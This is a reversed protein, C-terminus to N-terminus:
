TYKEVIERIQLDYKGAAKRAELIWFRPDSSAYGIGSSINIVFDGEANAANVVSRQLGGEQKGIGPVLLFAGPAVRRIKAIDDPYTAGAVLGVSGIKSWEKEIMRAIVLFLPAHDQNEEIPDDGVYVPLDQIARAGKNSTRCLFIGTKGVFRLFVEAADELGLYPNLTLAGVGMRRYFTESYAENTAGIDGRKADGIIPMYPDQSLIFDILQHYMEHGRDGLSEFFAVNLKFCGALDITVEVVRRLFKETEVGEPNKAPVPDLGVCLFKLDQRKRERMEKFSLM